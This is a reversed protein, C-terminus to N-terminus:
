DQRERQEKMYEILTHSIMACRKHNSLALFAVGHKRILHAEIADHMEKYKMEFM